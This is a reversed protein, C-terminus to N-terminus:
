DLGFVESVLDCQGLKTYQEEGVARGGVRRVERGAGRREDGGGADRRRESGVRETAGASGRGDNMVMSATMRGEPKARGRRGVEM